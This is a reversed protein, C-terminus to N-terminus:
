AFDAMSRQDGAFAARRSGVMIGGPRSQGLQGWGHLLLGARQPPAQAGSEPILLGRALHRDSKVVFSFFDAMFEGERCILSVQGHGSDTSARLQSLVTPARRLGLLPAVLWRGQAM